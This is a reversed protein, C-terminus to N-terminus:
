SFSSSIQNQFESLRIGKAIFHFANKKTVVQSFMEAAFFMNRGIM